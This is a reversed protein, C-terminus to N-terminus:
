KKGGLEEKCKRYTLDIKFLNKPCPIDKGSEWSNTITYSNVGWSEALEALSYKGSKRIFKIKAPVAQRLINFDLNLPNLAEKLKIDELELEWARNLAEASKLLNTYYNLIHKFIGIDRGEPKPLNGTKYLAEHSNVYNKLVEEKKKLEIIWGSLRQIAEGREM